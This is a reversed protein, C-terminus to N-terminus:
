RRGRVARHEANYEELYRAHLDPDEVALERIAARKSMRGSAMKEEIREEWEAVASREVDDTAKQMAEEEKREQTGSPPAVTAGSFEVGAGGDDDDDELDEVVAAPLGALAAFTGEITGVEDILRLRKADAALHVRGDTVQKLNLRPRGARLSALFRENTADVIRQYEALDRESIKSGMIGSGKFEGTKIVHTKVGQKEFNESFDDVVMYTGISGVLAGANAVIRRAGAIAWYAASTGLDEIFATVPKVKAAAAVDAALDGVGAVHGGPSEVHLLIAKVNPSDAASRVERRLGVVGGPMAPFLSSGYKSLVGSISIIAVEGDQRFAGPKRAPSKAAAAQAEAHLAAFLGPASLAWRFQRFARPEMGWAGNYQDANPILM